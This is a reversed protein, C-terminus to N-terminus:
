QFNRIKKLFTQSIQLWDPFRTGRERTFHCGTTEHCEIVLSPVYPPQSCLMTAARASLMFKLRSMRGGGLPSIHPSYLFPENVPPRRIRIVCDSTLSTATFSKNTLQLVLPRVDAPCVQEHHRVPHLVDVERLWVPYLIGSKHETLIM